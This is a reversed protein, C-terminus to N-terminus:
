GGSQGLKEKGMARTIKGSGKKTTEIKKWQKRRGPREHTCPTGGADGKGMEKEEYGWFVSVGL